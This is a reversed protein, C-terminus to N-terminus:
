FDCVAHTTSLTFQGSWEFIAEEPGTYHYRLCAIYSLVFFFGRLIEFLTFRIVVYWEDELTKMIFLWGLSMFFCRLLVSGSSLWIALNNKKREEERLHALEFNHSEKVITIVCFLLM